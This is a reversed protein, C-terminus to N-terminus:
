EAVLRLGEPRPVRGFRDFPLLRFNVTAGIDDGSVFGFARSDTSGDWNDGIVWYRDAPIVTPGLEDRRTAEENGRGQDVLGTGDPLCCPQLSTGVQRTWTPNEVRHVTSSGAPILRVVPQKDRVEISVTDGPLGIVRKVMASGTRGPHTTNVLDFREIEDGAFLDNHLRDGTHLTPEMSEGHVTMALLLVAAVGLGGVVVLATVTLGLVRGLSGREDRDSSLRM